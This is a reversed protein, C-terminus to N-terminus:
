PQKKESVTSGQETASLAEAHGDSLRGIPFPRAIVRCMEEMFTGLAEMFRGLGPKEGGCFLLFKTSAKEKNKQFLPLYLAPLDSDDDV